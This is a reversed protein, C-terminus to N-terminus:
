PGPPEEVRFFEAGAGTVPCSFPVLTGIATNTALPWWVALNTSGQVIYAMGSYATYSFNFGGAAQNTTSAFLVPTPPTSRQYTFGGSGKSAWFSFQLSLYIDDSILHVVLNSGVITTPSNGNLWNLWNTYGLSAYNTLAGFAWETNLPSANTVASELAVNFLGGSKARTLWVDPTIRDQNTAQTPDPSPQNFTILPGDWVMAARLAPAGAFAVLALGVAAPHFLLRLAAGVKFCLNDMSSPLAPLVWINGAIM